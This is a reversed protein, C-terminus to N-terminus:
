NIWVYERLFIEEKYVWDFTGHILGDREHDSVQISFPYLDIIEGM